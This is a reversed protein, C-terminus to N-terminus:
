CSIPSPRTHEVLCCDLRSSRGHHKITRLAKLSSAFSRILGSPGRVGLERPGPMPHPQLDQPEVPPHSRLGPQALLPTLRLDHHGPMRMTTSTRKIIWSHPGRLMQLPHVEQLSLVPRALSLRLRGIHNSITPLVPRQQRSSVIESTIKWSRRQM